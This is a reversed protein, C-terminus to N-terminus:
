DRLSRDLVYESLAQMERDKINPFKPMMLSGNHVKHSIYTPTAKNSYLTFLMGPADKVATNHCEVCASKFILEGSTGSEPMYDRTCGAILLTTGIVTLKNRMIPGMRWNM